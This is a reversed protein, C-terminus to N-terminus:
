LVETGTVHCDIQGDKLKITLSDGSHVQEVSKVLEKKGKKYTLSYGRDMIALPNLATLRSIKNSFNMQYQRIHRNTEKVLNKHLVNVKENAKQLQDAPSFLGLQRQLQTLERQHEGLFIEATRKLKDIHRDLEQEKQKVLQTPYKFAYSKQLRNLHQQQGALYEKMVRKLRVNRQHLRDGLEDLHPVALEAAATPTPARLDAVFDAITYDTEHGVASIVPIRSSSIARAVIEENFAWLEEISGGGRGVILVDAEHIANAQEIARVISPAAGPGQVLVPFLTVISLPFRRKITTIIDRVAAGTPSTIVGIRRPFKPLGQKRSPDFLGEQELKNKLSEYALFLNGVGDQQMTRVYLQYQGQPEYVSFSGQILVNMGEEPKFNLYKNNGAFMVASVRSNADKLTFYLHGRSHMKVNSLEGKVWVDQLNGDNEFLRKIYRTVASIPVYRANQM